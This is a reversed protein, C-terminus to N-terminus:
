QFYLKDNKRKNALNFSFQDPFNDVTRSGPFLELHLPSFTPFVGYLKNNSNILFGKIITRQCNTLTNISHSLPKTSLNSPDDMLTRILHSAPLALPYLQSRSALKQLHFKIPIVETIAEIGEIPSTKFAGLIWITARQLKGLIKM